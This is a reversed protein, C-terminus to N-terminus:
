GTFSFEVRRWQWDKLKPYKNDEELSYIQTCFMVKKVTQASTSSKLLSFASRHTNTERVHVCFFGSRQKIQIHDSRSNIGKLCSRCPWQSLVNLLESPLLRLCQDCTQGKCNLTKNKNLAFATLPFTAEPNLTDFNYKIYNRQYCLKDWVM